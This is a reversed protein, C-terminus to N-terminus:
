LCSPVDPKPGDRVTCPPIFLGLFEISPAFPSRALRIGLLEVDVELPLLWASRSSHPADADVDSVGFDGSGPLARHHIVIGTPLPLSLIM